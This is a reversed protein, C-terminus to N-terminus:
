DYKIRWIGEEATVRLIVAVRYNKEEESIRRCRKKGQKISVDGCQDWKDGDEEM